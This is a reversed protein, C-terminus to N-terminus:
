CKRQKKTFVKLERSFIFYGNERLTEPLDERKM